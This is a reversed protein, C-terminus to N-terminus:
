VDKCEYYIEADSWEHPGERSTNKQKSRDTQNDARLNPDEVQSWLDVRDTMEWPEDTDLHQKREPSKTPSPTHSSGKLSKQRGTTVKKDKKEDGDLSYITMLIKDLHRDYEVESM